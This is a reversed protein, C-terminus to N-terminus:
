GQKKLAATEGDVDGLERRLQVCIAFSEAARLPQQIESLAQGLAYQCNAESAVDGRTKYLSLTSQLKAVNRHCDERRRLNM